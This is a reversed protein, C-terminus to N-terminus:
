VVIFSPQQALSSALTSKTDLEIACFTAIRNVTIIRLELPRQSSSPRRVSEDV